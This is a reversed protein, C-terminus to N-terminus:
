DDYKKVENDTSGNIINAYNIRVDSASPLQTGSVSQARTSNLQSVLIHSYLILAIFSIASSTPLEYDKICYIQM